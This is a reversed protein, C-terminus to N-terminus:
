FEVVAEFPLRDKKQQEKWMDLSVDKHPWHDLFWLEDSRDNTYAIGFREDSKYLMFHIKTPEDPNSAPIELEYDRVAYENGHECSYTGWSTFGNPANKSPTPHRAEPFNFRMEHSFKKWIKWKPGSKRIPLGALVIDIDSYHNREFLIRSTEIDRQDIIGQIEPGLDYEGGNRWEYYAKELPEKGFKEILESKLEKRRQDKIGHYDKKCAYTKNSLSSGVIYLGSGELFDKHRLLFEQSAELFREVNESDGERLSSIYELTKKNLM